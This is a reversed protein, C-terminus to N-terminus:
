HANNLPITLTVQEVAPSESPAVDQTDKHTVGSQKDEDKDHEDKDHEDEDGHEEQPPVISATTATVEAAVIAPKEEPTNETAVM